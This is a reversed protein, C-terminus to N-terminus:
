LFAKRDKLIEYAGSTVRAENLFYCFVGPIAKESKFFFLFPVRSLM